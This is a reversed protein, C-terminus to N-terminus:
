QVATLQIVFILISNAPIGPVANSGYGLSPPLYLNITGGAKILPLGRQWGVILEGLAYTSETNEEAATTFKFGSTLYGAYKVTVGSCIGPTVTGTGAAVIEYYFGGSHLTATPHNAAIYAQLSTMESGPVMIGSENFGCGSPNAKNCSSLVVCCTFFTLLRRIM